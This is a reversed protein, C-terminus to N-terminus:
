DILASAGIIGADNGLTATLIEFTMEASFGYQYKECYNKIRNVLYEGQASVGGGIIFAQPRFINSLSMMGDALYACFNNCVEDASKDGLKASEFATRGDVKEIDGGVFDWMKSEKDKLMAQKTQRILATASAYAELCGKRGCSCPEGNCVITVHGLEAGKSEGGEFLKGDAVIGGGVGTGLTLMVVDSKGKAAGFKAEALAAVNADNSLKVNTDFIKKLENCVAVKEWGLNHAREVVGTASSIVGPSGLGIGKVDKITLNNASLIDNIQWVMNAIVKEATDETKKVNKYIIKGNEDVLGAKVSMGGIDIGITKM